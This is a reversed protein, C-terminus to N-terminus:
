VEFTALLTFQIQKVEATEVLDTNRISKCEKATTLLMGTLEEIDLPLEQLTKHCVQTQHVGLNSGLVKLEQNRKEPLSPHMWNANQGQSSM